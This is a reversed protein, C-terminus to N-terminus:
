SLWMRRLEVGFSSTISDPKMAAISVSSLSTTGGSRTQVIPSPATGGATDPDTEGIGEGPSPVDGAGTRGSSM